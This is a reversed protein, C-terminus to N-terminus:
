RVGGPLGNPDGGEDPVYPDGFDYTAFDAAKVLAGGDDTIWLTYAADGEGGSGDDRLGGTGDGGGAPYYWIPIDGLSELAPLAGGLVANGEADRVEFERGALDRVSEVGLPLGTDQDAFVDYFTWEYWGFCEDMAGPVMLSFYFQDYAKEEFDYRQMVVSAFTGDDNFYDAYGLEFDELVPIECDGGGNGDGRGHKEDECELVVEGTEADVVQVCYWACPDERPEDPCYGPYPYYYYYGYGYGGGHGGGGSPDDGGCDPDGWTNGCTGDGGGDDPVQNGDDRIGDGGDVYGYAVPEPAVDETIKAKGKGRRNTTFEGLATTEGPRRVEYRRQAELRKAEVKLTRKARREKAKVKGTAESLPSDTPPALGGVETPSAAVGPAFCLALAAALGAVALRNAITGPM